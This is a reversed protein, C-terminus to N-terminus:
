KGFRNWLTLRLGTSFSITGFPAAGARFFLEVERLHQRKHGVASIHIGTEGVISAFFPNYTNQYASPRAYIDTHLLQTGAGFHLMLWLSKQKAVPFQVKALLPISLAGLGKYHDIDLAFPLYEIGGEISVIWRDVDGVWFNVGLGPLINLVQGSASLPSEIRSPKQYWSYLNYNMFFASGVYIPSTTQSNEQAQLKGFLLGILSLCLLTYKM